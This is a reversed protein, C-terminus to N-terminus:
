IHPYALQVETFHVWSHMRHMHMIRMLIHCWQTMKSSVVAEIVPKRPTSKNSKLNLIKIVLLCHWLWEKENLSRYQIRLKKEWYPPKITVSPILCVIVFYHQLLFLICMTVPCSILSNSFLDICHMIINTVSLCFCNIPMTINYNSKYISNTDCFMEMIM